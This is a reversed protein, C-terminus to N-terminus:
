PWGMTFHWTSTRLRSVTVAAARGQWHTPSADGHWRSGPRGPGPPDTGCEPDVESDGCLMCHHGRVENRRARYTVMHSFAPDGYAAEVVRIRAGCSVGPGVRRGGRRAPQRGTGSYLVWRGVSVKDALLEAASPYWHYGARLRTATSQPRCADGHRSPGPVPPGLFLFLGSLHCNKNYFPCKLFIKSCSSPVILKNGGKLIADMIRFSTPLSLCLSCM